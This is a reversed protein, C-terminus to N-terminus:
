GFPNTREGTHEVRISRSFLSIVPMYRLPPAKAKKIFSIRRESGFDRVLEKELAISTRYEPFLLSTVIKNSFVRFTLTKSVLEHYQIRQALLFLSLTNFRFVSPM